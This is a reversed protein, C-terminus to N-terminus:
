EAKITSTDMREDTRPTRPAPQDDISIAYKSLHERWESNLPANTILKHFAAYGAIKALGIRDCKSQDAVLFSHKANQIMMKRIEAENENTDTVGHRMDMGSCSIFAKDALYLSMAKAAAHGSYSLSHHRLTGGTCILKLHDADSLETIVKLSNTIVTLHKLTKVSRAIHLSTTSSDLMITDGNKVLRACKSGIWMKEALYFDERVWIPLDTILDDELFAGGHTRQLLGERELRDLDRRITEESVRFNRSLEAVLVRGDRHLHQMIGKRREIALM